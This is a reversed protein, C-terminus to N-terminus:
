QNPSLPPRELAVHGLNGTRFDKLMRAGAKETDGQFMKDALCKVYDEGTVAPRLSIGYRFALKSLSRSASPLERLMEVLEAAVLSDVYAAEGIDNCMALKQAAAQDQLNAPIVGPADLLDLDGGVRLWKLDRTVGPKPASDCLRRNLMRNILASKGVNPFGIVCARVPRPKLGRGERRENIVQSLHTAAKVVQGTGQGTEGNTWFCTQGQSSYYASWALADEKGVMDVRNFILLRPRGNSWKPIQPHRSAEPIRADRVELVVDVMNLQEKLMREAKAIHGPYWQITRGQEYVIGYEGDAAYDKFMNGRALSMLTRSRLHIPRYTTFRLRNINIHNRFSIGGHEHFSTSTANFSREVFRDM